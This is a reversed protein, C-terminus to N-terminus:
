IFVTYQFLASHFANTFMIWIVARNWFHQSTTLCSMFICSIPMECILISHQFWFCIAWKMYMYTESFKFMTLWLNKNSFHQSESFREHMFVLCKSPGVKEHDKKCFGQRKNTPPSCTWHAWVWVLVASFHYDLTLCGSVTYPMCPERGSYFFLAGWCFNSIQAQIIYYQEFISFYKYVPSLALFVIISLLIWLAECSVSGIFTYPSLKLSLTFKLVIHHEMWLHFWIWYYQTIYQLDLVPTQM